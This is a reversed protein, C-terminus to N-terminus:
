AVGLGDMSHRSVALESAVVDLIEKAATGHTDLQNVLVAVSLGEAPDCYAMNNFLGPFGFGRLVESNNSSSSAVKMRRFGNPWLGGPPTEASEIEAQLRRCYGASLIRGQTPLAGDSALAAYMTALGRATWHTNVAPLLSARISADNFVRPDMGMEQLAKMGNSMDGLIDGTDDQPLVKPSIGVSALRAELNQGNCIFGDETEPIRVAVENVIGLPLLVLERVLAEYSWRKDHAQAIKEALGAVLWGHTVAHYVPRGLEAAEPRARAIRRKMMQFNCLERVAAGIGGNSTMAPMSHALGSKHELIHRV